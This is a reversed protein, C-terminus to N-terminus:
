YKVLLLMEYFYCEESLQGFQEDDLFDAFLGVFSAIFLVNSFLINFIFLITATSLHDKTKLLLISLMVTNTVVLLLLIAEVTLGIEAIKAIKRFQKVNPINAYADNVSQCEDSNTDDNDYSIHTANVSTGDDDYGADLM